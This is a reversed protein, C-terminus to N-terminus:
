GLLLSTSFILMGLMMASLTYPLVDRAQLGTIGLLPLAWFPQMMNSLQDGYALSMVTKWAPIDLQRGAELLIPGQVQWQGGGSPVMLNVLSASLMAMVPFSNSTSIHVFGQALWEVLAYDQMIGMIGFYLPFQVAIGAAGPMAKEVARVYSHMSGHMILGIGLLALNIFDLTLFRLEARGDSHAFRLACSLLLLAGFLLALMRSHDIRNPKSEPSPPESSHRATTVDGSPSRVAASKARGKGLQALAQSGAASHPRRRGLAYFFLPLLLLCAATNLLNMGSGLTQSLPIVGCLEILNHDSGNVSLPASASLGGHWVMSGVYAAAGILPFNFPYQKSWANEAAKRAFVAGLILGLGWNFLSATIAVLAVLAASSATNHCFRLLSTLIRDIPRSLALAHGLVLILLMQMTFVMGGRNWIGQEWSMLLNGIRSTQATAPEVGALLAMLFVVLTLFVAISFPM